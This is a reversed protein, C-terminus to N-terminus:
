HKCGGLKNTYEFNVIHCNESRQREKDHRMKLSIFKLSELVFNFCNLKTKWNNQISFPLPLTIVLNYFSIFHNLFINHLYM